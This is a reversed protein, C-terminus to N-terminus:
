VPSLPEFRFDCCDGGRALTNGRRFAVGIKACAEPFYIDDAYCSPLCAEGEGLAQPIAYWACFTCNMQFAQDTNEVIEYVHVGAKKDAEAMATFYATWAKWPDDCRNFDEPSPFIAPYAIRAVQAMIAELIELAKQRGAIRALAAYMAAFEIQSKVFAQNDLGRRLIASLDQRAMRRTELATLLLFRIMKILGLRDRIIKKGAANIKQNQEKPIALSMDSLAAGYNKLESVRM